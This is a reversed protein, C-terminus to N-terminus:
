LAFWAGIMAPPCGILLTQPRMAGACALAIAGGVFASDSRCGRLLLGCAFVVLVVSPVDSFGTEGFFWVNPFFALLVAAIFSTRFGLRLERCVFVMAPVLLVGAALNVAELARFGAVGLLTFLKAAAIFLPFGPPHPHHLAVDYHRLALSCLIEDWGWPSRALGWVRTVATILTAAVLARKQRTTMPDPPALLDIM